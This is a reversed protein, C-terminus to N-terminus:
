LNAIKRLSIDQCARSWNAEILCHFMNVSDVNFLDRLADDCIINRKHLPDQLNKERIYNWMQKVVETRPLESVGTLKQLEPSLSCVKTFGGGGRKRKRSRLGIREGFGFSVGM